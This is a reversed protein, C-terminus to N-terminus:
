AQNMTISRIINTVKDIDAHYEKQQIPSVFIFKRSSLSTDDKSPLMTSQKLDFAPTFSFTKSLTSNTSLNQTESSKISKSTLVNTDSPIINGVTAVNKTSLSDLISIENSFLHQHFSPVCKIQPVLISLRLCIMGSSLSTASTKIAEYAGTKLSVNKKDDNPLLCFKTGLPKIPMATDTKKEIISKIDNSPSFNIDPLKMSKENDSKSSNFFMSLSKTNQLENENSSSEFTLENNSNAGSRQARVQNLGSSIKTKMKGGQKTAIAPISTNSASDSNKNNGFSSINNEPKNSFTSLRTPDSSLAIFPTSKNAASSKTVTINEIQSSKKSDNANITASWSAPPGSSNVSTENLNQIRASKMSAQASAKDKSVPSFALSRLPPGNFYSNNARLRSANSANGNLPAGLNPRRRKARGSKESIIIM